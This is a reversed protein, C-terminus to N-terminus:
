WTVIKDLIKLFVRVLEPDFQVGANNNLEELAVKRPLAKRYPRDSTMADFADAISLIRCELPIADGKLGLPYGNGNWWEHHKFIWDAIPVLDISSIAIRYGTECHKKIIEYEQSTLKGKKFLIEDPTGIKGIDHFQAFLHLDAFKHEPIGIGRAIMTVLSQIRRAHGETVFDRVELAKKLTEVITSRSSQKHHLKERYLNNDAETFLDNINSSAKSFARGISTSLLLEPEKRNYEKINNKIKNYTNNLTEENINSLIIAFEDGGIRALIDNGRISLKLINALFILLEDGKKHGLTDNVIKLGDVDIIILGIPVNGLLKLRQTEQEFFRRTYTNTLSDHLSIYRLHEEQQKRLTIDRVINLCINESGIKAVQSSVEVHFTHGDKRSHVAEFIQNNNLMKLVKSNCIDYVRQSLLQERSYGYAKLAANNAEIISGDNQRVILIIDRTNESLLQYLKLIAESKKRESIDLIVGRLGVIKGNKIIPASNIMIPFVTGDTKIALYEKAGINKGQLVAKMNHQIRERDMPHIRSVVYIEEPLENKSYGFFEFGRLNSFCLRGKIDIEFIVEQLSDVVEKYREETEHLIKELLSKESVNILQGIYIQDALNRIKSFYCDTNIINGNFTVVRFKIHDQTYEELNNILFLEVMTQDEPHVIELFKKTLISHEFMKLMAQNTYTITANQLIFTPIPLLEITDKLDYM